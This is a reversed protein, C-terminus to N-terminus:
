SSIAENLDFTYLSRYQDWAGSCTQLTLIPAGEYKFLSDDSPNTVLVQRLTYTFRNGNDAYIIAIDGVELEKLNAFVAKKNHGYIFTNGGKNNAPPTMVAYQARDNTLTWTKRVPNYVGDIVEINIGVDPLEIRVPKGQTIKKGDEVGNDEIPQVAQTFTPLSAVKVNQSRPLARLVIIGTFVFLAAVTLPFSLRRM